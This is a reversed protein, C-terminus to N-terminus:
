WILRPIPRAKQSWSTSALILELLMFTKAATDGVIKGDLVVPLKVAAGMSENRYVYINSKDPKVAFTKAQSDREPEGHSDLRL